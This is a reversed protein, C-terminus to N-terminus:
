AFVQEFDAFYCQVKTQHDIIKRRIKQLVTGLADRAEQYSSTVTKM